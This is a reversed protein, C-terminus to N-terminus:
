AEYIAERILNYWLNVAMVAGIVRISAPTNALFPILTVAVGWVGLSLLTLALNIYFLGRNLKTLM